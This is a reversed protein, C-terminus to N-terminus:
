LSLRPDEITQVISLPLLQRERRSIMSSTRPCVSRLPPSRLASAPMPMMKTFTL